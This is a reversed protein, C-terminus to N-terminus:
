LTLRWDEERLYLRTHTHSLLMKLKRVVQTRITNINNAPVTGERERESMMSQDDQGGVSRIVKIFGHMTPDHNGHLELLRVM